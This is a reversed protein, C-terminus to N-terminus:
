RKKPPPKKGKSGFPVFGPKGGTKGAGGKKAYKM